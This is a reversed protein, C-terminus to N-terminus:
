GIALRAAEAALFGVTILFGLAPLWRPVLWIGQPRPDKAKVRWLALNVLAFVTLTIASTSQALVVLGFALALLAVVSSVVLTAAVPTRTAPHIRGLWVPLLGQSSLGYLIRAAMIIQILAGNITALVGILSIVTGSSGSAREYVLALPAGSAALEEPPVALVSVLALALYLTLTVLFTVIIALPLARGVDKVEEAVNVMDEFGIFAYFALFAGGLVGAWAALEFPPLFDPLRPPLEVLSGKAAWFVLLLGGVEALTLLAALTVSQGIGWAAVAALLLVVALIGLSRPVSVLDQAYGVFGNVITASSVLGTAVVMLGVVVALRDSGLGERVYVAEGASRPYRASLEAFSLATVGALLSAVLFALPALFGAVGAVEGILAYIGAGVTTGLGYLVLLPLSLSRRLTRAEPRGPRGGVGSKAM